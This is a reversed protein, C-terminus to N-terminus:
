TSSAPPRSYRRIALLTLASVAVGIGLGALSLPWVPAPTPAPRPPDAATPPVASPRCCALSGDRVAASTPVVRTKDIFTLPIPAALGKGMDFVMQCTGSTPKPFSGGGNDDTEGEAYVHTGVLCRVSAGPVPRGGDTLRITLWGSSDIAFAAEPPQPVAPPTPAESFGGVVAALALFPHM